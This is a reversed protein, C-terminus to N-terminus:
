RFKENSKYLCILDSINVPLKGTIIGDGIKKFFSFSDNNELFNAINLQLNKAKELSLKDGLAGAFETNDWGDSNISCIVIENNIMKKALGNLFWLVLEQNRGGKGQGKVKVTTEGGILLINKDFNIIKDLLYYAVERVEGKLNDTLIESTLNLKEAKQKMTELATLNSLIIRHEVNEFYKEDKPTEILDDFNLSLNYKQVIGWADEKTTLDESIPGSAITALDNGPVDSVILALVKAPYLFKLLGGGKVKDLHKRVINMEYIDAGSRLLEQNIKIYKELDKPQVFMASGGGCIVVIVLDESTLKNEFRGIVKKTFEFNNQSPLPHTGQFFNIKSSLNQPQVLDIVYGENFDIKESLIKVIEASGKGFGILYINKYKSFDFVIKELAKEYNLAELGAEIIELVNKREQTIALESFNKIIM